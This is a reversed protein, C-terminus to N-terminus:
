KIGSADLRVLGRTELAYATADYGVDFLIFGVTAAPMLLGALGLAVVLGKMLIRYRFLRRAVAPGWQKDHLLEDLLAAAVLPVLLPFVPLSYGFALSLGALLAVGVILNPKDTKLALVNGVVIALVVTAVNADGQILFWFAAACAAAAVYGWPSVGREGWRDALKLAVGSAAFVAISVAPDTM